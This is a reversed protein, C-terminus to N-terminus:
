MLPLSLLSSIYSAFCYSKTSGVEVSSSAIWGLVTICICLVGVRQFMSPLSCLLPSRSIRPSIISIYVKHFSSQEYYEAWCCISPSSLGLPTYYCHYPSQFPPLTMKPPSASCETPHHSETSIHCEPFLPISVVLSSPHYHEMKHHLRFKRGMAFWICQTQVFMINDYVKWYIVPDCTDWFIVITQTWLVFLLISAWEM